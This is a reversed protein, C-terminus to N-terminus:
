LTLLAPLLDLFYSFLQFLNRLRVKIHYVKQKLLMQLKKKNRLKKIEAHMNTSKTKNNKKTNSINETNINTNGAAPSGKIGTKKKNPRYHTISFVGEPIGKRFM